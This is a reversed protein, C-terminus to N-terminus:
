KSNKKKKFCVVAYSIVLHSSNLRTSKRDTQGLKLTLGKCFAAGLNVKDLVGGYVGPISVTGGKRCAQLVERLATPRDTELIPLADHLSLAYMSACHPQLPLCCYYVCM